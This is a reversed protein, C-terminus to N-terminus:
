GGVFVFTPRILLASRGGFPDTICGTLPFRQAYTATSLEARSKCVCLSLVGFTVCSRMYFPMTSLKDKIQSCVRYVKFM